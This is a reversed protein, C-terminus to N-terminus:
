ATAALLFEAGKKESRMAAVIRSIEIIKATLQAHSTCREIQLCLSEADPGLTDELLRTARRIMPKLTDDPGVPATKLPAPAPAPKPLDLAQVFGATLLEGLIQRAEDPNPMPKILEAVSKGGDVVILLMRSKPTLARDRLKIANVGVETKRLVSNPDLDTM